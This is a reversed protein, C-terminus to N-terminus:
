LNHINKLSEYYQITREIGTEIDYSASFKLYLQAKYPAAVSHKVDHPREGMFIVKKKAGCLSALTNLSTQQGTGVNYVTNAYQTTLSLSIAECVDDVYTFDRTTEGDGFIKIEPENIFRPIVASYASNPLQGSGYVNFFRLGVWALPPKCYIDAFQENMLKSLAYPSLPKGLREEIRTGSKDDGYVSSSSAFVLRSCGLLTGLMAVNIFGNVNVSMVENPNQFSRPVSGLAALHIIADPKDHVCISRMTEFDRIDVKYFKFNSWNQGSKAKIRDTPNLSPNVLNDFGLVEHGDNLLHSVLNSGIFGMCGTVLIKM